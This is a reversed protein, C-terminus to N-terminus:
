GPTVVQSSSNDCMSLRASHPLAVMLPQCLCADANCLPLCTTKDTVAFLVVLSCAHRAASKCCRMCTCFLNAEIQSSM